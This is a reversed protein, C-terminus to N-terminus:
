SIQHRFVAKYHELKKELEAVRDELGLQRAFHIAEAMFEKCESYAAARGSESPIDYLSSYAEEALYIFHEMKEILLPDLRAYLRLPEKFLQPILEFFRKTSDEEGHLFQKRVKGYPYVANKDDFSVSWEGKINQWRGGYCRIICEGIYSGLTNVLGDIANQDLDHNSRQREIFGNVWAVSAANYGFEMGSLPGLQRIVLEANAKIKDESMDFDKM